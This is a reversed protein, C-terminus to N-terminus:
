EEFILKIPMHHIPRITVRLWHYIWSLRALGYGSTSNKGNVEVIEDEGPVYRRAYDGAGFSSFIGKIEDVLLRRGLKEEAIQQYLAICGAMHPTAQSTGHMCGAIEKVGTYLGQLWGEEPSYLVEDPRTNSNIRGGGPALIDPKLTKPLITYGKNSVNSPGRSSFYCTIDDTISYSGVTIADPACGPCGITWNKAPEGESKDGSNGAAIVVIVGREALKKVAKCEPCVPEDGACGGQCESGGLSMSIVDAGNRWADEMGKLIDAESGFGFAGHLVKIHIANSEPAVGHCRGFMGSVAPGVATNTCWSGHAHMDFPHPDFSCDSLLTAKKMFPGVFHGTDLVAVTIGKGTAESPIDRIYTRSRETGIIIYRESIPTGYIRHPLRLPLLLDPGILEPPVEVPSNEIRGVLPDIYSFPNTPIAAYIHKPMNYHVMKVGPIDSIPGVMESSVAPIEIFDFMQRAVRVGLRPISAKVEERREKECEVLLSITRQHELQELKEALWPNIRTRTLNNNKIFMNDISIDKHSTILYLMAGPTVGVRRDM